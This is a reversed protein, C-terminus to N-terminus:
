VPHRRDRIHPIGHHIGDSSNVLRTGSGHIDQSAMSRLDILRGFKDETYFKKSNMQQTKNKEQIFIRSAEDWMERSEIGGNYTMDPSSNITISVKKLNPFVFRESDRTGATYPEIFLLVKINIKKGTGKNITVSKDYIVNDYAFENGSTYVSMAEGVPSASRIM